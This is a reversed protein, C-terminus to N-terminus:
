YAENEDQTYLNEYNYHNMYKGYYNALSYSYKGVYNGTNQIPLQSIQRYVDTDIQKMYTYINFQANGIRGENIGCEVFHRLLESPNNGITKQLDPNNQYYYGADFVASYDRGNYTTATVVADPKNLLYPNKLCDSLILYYADERGARAKYNECYARLENYDLLYGNDLFMELNQYANSALNMSIIVNDREGAHGFNWYYGEIKTLYVPLWADKESSQMMKQMERCTTFKQNRVVNAAASVQLVTSSLMGMVAALVFAKKIKMIAGIRQKRLEKTQIITDEM